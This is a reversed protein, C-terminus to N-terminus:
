PASRRAVWVWGGDQIIFHGRGSVAATLLRKQRILRLFLAKRYAPIHTSTKSV